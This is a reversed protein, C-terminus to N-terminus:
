DPGRVVPAARRSGDIDVAAPPEAAGRETGPWSPHSGGSKRKPSPTGGPAASGRGCRGSAQRRWRRHRVVPPPPPRRRVAGKFSALRGCCALALSVLDCGHRRWRARSGREGLSVLARGGARCGWGRFEVPCGRSCGCCDGTVTVHRRRGRRCRPRRWRAPAVLPPVVPPETNGRAPTNLLLLLVLLLLPLLLLLRGRGLATSSLGRRGM